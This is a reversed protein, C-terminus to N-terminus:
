LMPSLMPSIRTREGHCEGECEFLVEGNNTKWVYAKDDEGGSVALSANGPQLRVTFVSGTHKDFVVEADDRAPMTPEGGGGGDEDGVLEDGDADYNELDMENMDTM